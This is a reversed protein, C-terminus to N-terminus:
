QYKFTKSAQIFVINFCHYNIVPLGWELIFKCLVNTSPVEHYNSQLYNSYYLHLKHSVTPESGSSGQVQFVCCVGFGAACQGDNTGSQDSCESSSLCTGTLSSDSSSRCEDNQLTLHKTICPGNKVNIISRTVKFAVVQFLGFFELSLTIYLLNTLFHKWKSNINSGNRDAM